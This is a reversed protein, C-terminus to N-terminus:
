CFARNTFSSSTHHSAFTPRVVADVTGVKMAGLYARRRFVGVETDRSICPLNSWDPRRPPPFETAPTLFCRRAKLLSGFDPMVRGPVAQGNMATYGWIQAMVKGTPFTGGNRAALGTLDAPKRALGRRRRATAWGSAGHCPACLAAFDQAGTAAIEPEGSQAQCGALLTLALFAARTMKM